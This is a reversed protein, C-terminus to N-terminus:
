SFYNAYGRTCPKLFFTEAPHVGRHKQEETCYTQPNCLAWCGLELATGAAPLARFSFPGLIGRSPSRCFLIQCTNRLASGIVVQAAAAASGTLSKVTQIVEPVDLCLSCRPSHQYRQSNLNSAVWSATLKDALLNQKMQRWGAVRGNFLVWHVLWGRNETPNSM